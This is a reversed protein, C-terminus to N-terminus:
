PASVVLPVFRGDIVSYIVSRPNRRDGYADFSVEGTVGAFSSRGIEAAIEARSADDIRTGRTLVAAAARLVARAADYGYAALAPILDAQDESVATPTGSGAVAAPGTGVFASAAPTAPGASSSVGTAPAAPPAPSTASPTLADSDRDVASSQQPGGAEPGWRKLYAAAFAGATPLESVPVALDTALDGEAATGATDLYRASLMADTGMIPIAMGDAAMRRRLAGAFAYGSTTYVLDPRIATIGAEVAQLDSATAADGHVEYSAVVEAGDASADSAFREALTQGFGGGGDIVLIRTLHLTRVAYDAGTRAELEDTGSLRFYRAYPRTRTAAPSGQDTLDPGSNSPSVVPLGATALVPLAVRAVTSSLPGVVGIMSPDAAFADAAASGGDPRSLDDKAVIEVKWGPIAGGRNVEDVAMQVSNRVATGINGLDGSLPAMVGIRLVRPAGASDESQGRLVAALGVGLGTPVAVVLALLAALLARGRTSRARRAGWGAVSGPARHLWRGAVVLWSRAIHWGPVLEADTDDGAVLIPESAVIEGTDGGSLWDGLRRAFSPQGAQDRHMEGAPGAAEPPEDPTIPPPASM